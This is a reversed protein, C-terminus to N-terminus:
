KLTLEGAQPVMRDLLDCPKQFMPTKETLAHSKDFHILLPIEFSMLGLLDCFPQEIHLCWSRYDRGLYIYQIMPHCPPQWMKSSDLLEPFDDM